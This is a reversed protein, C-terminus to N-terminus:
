HAQHLILRNGAPDYAYVERGHSTIFIEGIPVNGIATLHAIAAELDSVELCLSIAAKSQSAFEQTHSQKPRFIGIRLGPLQFEGYLNQVYAQPEQGLLQRYFQILVEPNLDALTVLACVCPFVM